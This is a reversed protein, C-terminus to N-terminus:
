AANRDSGTGREFTYRHYTRRAGAGRGYYNWSPFNFDATLSRPLTLAAQLFAELDPVDYINVEYGWTDLCEFIRRKAETKWSVSVRTIGWRELDWLLHRAAGPMALILPALFDVPCQLIAGPRAAVIKRFGSEQLTEISGNFWLRDDGIGHRELADLVRDIVAAGEKLDLKIGKQYHNMHGLLEDLSLLQEERQWPTKEFSDHRLVIRDSPDTRVDTEGWQIPSATFQRLNPEDNLGHWVLQVHGPIDRESLLCTIDYDRGRVTRPTAGAQSSFLTDAHLFLVEADPDGDAMAEINKPENDVVAVIRYGAERFRRLGEVKADTVSQEWDNRNMHLLESAFRVRYEHGLANLSRLTDERLSEPRGTNLAVHTGPQIQFWRIVDLVGRYPRHSAFIADSTWRHELYWALVRQREPRPLGSAVLFDDVDNEHVDIDEAELGRFHASGCERDYTLLVHRVMHRMDLITGDIDFVILLEDTPYRLRFSSYQEALAHMWDSM